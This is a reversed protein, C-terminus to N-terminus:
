YISDMPNAANIAEKTRSKRTSNIYGSANRYFNKSFAFMVM